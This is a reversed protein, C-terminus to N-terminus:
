APTLRAYALVLWKSGADDFNVQVRAHSGAGEIDTVVGSGFSAHVVNQGLSLGPTEDVVAHGRDRRPAPAYRPRSVQV